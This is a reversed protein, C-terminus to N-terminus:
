GTQTAATRENSLTFSTGHKKAMSGYQKAAKKSRLAGFWALSDEVNMRADRIWQLVGELFNIHYEGVEGGTQEMAVVEIKNRLETSSNALQKIEILIEQIKIQIEQNNEAAARKGAHIIESAYEHGMETVQHMKEKIEGLTLEEGAHMEGGHTDHSDHSSSSSGESGLLQNWLDNMTEKALDDVVSEKVGDSISRLVEIPNQNIIHKSKKSGSKFSPLQM